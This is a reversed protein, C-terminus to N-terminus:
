KQVKPKRDTPGVDYLISIRNGGCKPCPPEQASVLPGRTRYGSWHCAECLCRYKIGASM